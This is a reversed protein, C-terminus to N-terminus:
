LKQGSKFFPEIRNKQFFDQTSTTLNTEQHIRLIHFTDIEAFHRTFVGLMGGVLIHHCTIFISIFRIWWWATLDTESMDPYNRQSALIKPDIM